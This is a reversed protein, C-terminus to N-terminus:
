LGLRRSGKAEVYGEEIMRDILKRATTQNIEGDLKNQLKPITVYNM